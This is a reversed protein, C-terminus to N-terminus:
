KRHIKAQAQPNNSLLKETGVIQLCIFGVFLPFWFSASRLIIATVGSAGSSIGYLIFITALLIELGGVSFSASADQVATAIFYIVIYFQPTNVPIGLAFFIFVFVLLGFFYSLAHLIFPKILLKPHERFIQFGSYFSALSTQTNVVFAPTYSKPRFTKIVKFYIQSVPESSKKVLALFLLVALYLTTGILFVAFLDTIVDPANPTLFIFTAGVYLGSTVIIYAVIRNTVASAAIAGYNKETEKQVLYLRTLEGCVTACPIVLDTFYGVWYYLYAKRYSLNIKLNKLISNWAASWFFVSLLVCALALSYFLAYQGSNLNTIVFMIKPLGIFFYLYVLFVILGIIM